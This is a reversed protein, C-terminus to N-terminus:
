SFISMLIPNRIHKDVGGGPSSHYNVINGARPFETWVPLFNNAIQLDM